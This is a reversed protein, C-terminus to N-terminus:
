RPPISVALRRAEILARAFTMVTDVGAVADALTQAVPFAPPAGRGAFLGPMVENHYAILPIRIGIRSHPLTLVPVAGATLGQYAGNPEGGIITGVGLHHAIAAIEAASSSSDPGILWYLRGTFRFAPAPAFAGEAGDVSLMFRLLQPLTLTALPRERQGPPLQGAQEATIFDDLSYEIFRLDDYSTAIFDRNRYFRFPRDVLFSFLQNNFKDNGGPCDRLDIVLDQVGAAAIREFTGHLFAGTGPSSMEDLTVVAVGDGALDLRQAAGGERAERGALRRPPIGALIHRTRQGSRSNRVVAVYRAAPGFATAHYFWFSRNLRSLKTAHAFGDVAIMASLRQTVREMPRGDISLLESGPPVQPAESLDAEVLPRGNVYRLDLPFVRRQNNAFYRQLDPPLQLSTHSDRIADALPLLRRHFELDTLPRNLGSRISNFLADLRPKATYRYLNPHAHELTFRLRDLDERLETATLAKTLLRSPPQAAPQAPAIAASFLLWVALFIRM